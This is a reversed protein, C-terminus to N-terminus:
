EWKVNNEERYKVTEEVVKMFFETVDDHIIKMRLLRALDRFSAMFMQKIAQHRCIEFVKKGKVRFEANPDKLSNCNIGFACTGIVDTTFRALVDKLELEENEDIMNSLCNQFESAVEVITPFMFKMKTLTFTPTLKSRLNKWKAGELSFLHASLPDDRENFYVGRDHFYTFDKIFVNKIFDLDIALAVPKTFFYIGAFPGKGKLENYFNRMLQSSHIKRGIGAINGFPLRPEIYAVKQNKWFSFKLKIYAYLSTVVFVLLLLIQLLLM